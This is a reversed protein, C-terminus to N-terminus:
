KDANYKEMKEKFKMLAKARHSIKNKTDQPMQAATMNEHPDFFVPDYGFGGDGMEETTIEGNWYDEAAVVDGNPFVCAISSVFRAAREVEGEMNKLLLWTRDKDSQCLQGGYRASYVGPEGNLAKVELGSDDAVAAFGSVEMVAKAKILANEAFTKGNEEPELNIGAESQSMVDFGLLQMISKIEAIKKKNNSAIILKM